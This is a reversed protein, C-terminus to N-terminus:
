ASTTPTEGAPETVPNQLPLSVQENAAADQRQVEAVFADHFSRVDGMPLRQLGAIILNVGNIDLSISFM